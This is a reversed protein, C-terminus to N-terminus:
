GEFGDMTGLDAVGASVDRAARRAHMLQTIGSKEGASTEVRIPVEHFQLLSDAIATKVNIFAKIGCAQGQVVNTDVLLHVPSPLVATATFHSDKISYFNHIVASSFKIENGTSFWGVVQERSATKQRLQLMDKHYDQNM